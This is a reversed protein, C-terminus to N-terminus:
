NALHVTWEEFWDVKSARNVINGNSIDARLYFNSWKNSQIIKAMGDSADKIVWKEWDERNTVLKVAWNENESRASLYKNHYANKIFVIKDGNGTTGFEELFWYEWEGVDDVQDVFDDAKGRLFKEHASEFIVKTSEFPKMSTCCQYVWSCGNLSFGTGCEQMVRFSVEHDIISDCMFNARRIAEHIDFVPPGVNTWADCSSGCARKQKGSAFCDWLGRHGRLQREKGGDTTQSPWVTKWDEEM